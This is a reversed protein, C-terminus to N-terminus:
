QFGVGGPWSASLYLGRATARAPSTRLVGAQM